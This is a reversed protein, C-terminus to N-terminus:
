FQVLFLVRMVLPLLSFSGWNSGTTTVVQGQRSLCLSSGKGRVGGGGSAGAEVARPRTRGERGVPDECM